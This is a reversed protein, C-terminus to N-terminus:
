IDNKLVLVPNTSKLWGQIVNWNTKFWFLYCQYELFSIQLSQWFLHLSIDEWAFFLSAWNLRPCTFVPPLRGGYVCIVNILRNRKIDDLHFAQSFVYFNNSSEINILNQSLDLCNWSRPARVFIFLSDYKKESM